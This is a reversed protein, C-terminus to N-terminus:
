GHVFNKTVFCFTCLAIGACLFCLSGSDDGFLVWEGAFARIFLLADANKDFYFYM